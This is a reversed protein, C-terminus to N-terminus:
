FNFKMLEWMLGFCRFCNWKVKINMLERVPGTGGGGLGEMLEELEDLAENLSALEIEINQLEANRVLDHVFHHVQNILNKINAFLKAELDESKKKGELDGELLRINSEM